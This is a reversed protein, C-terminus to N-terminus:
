AGIRSHQLVCAVLQIQLVADGQLAVQIRRKLVWPHQTADNQPLPSLFAGFRWFPPLLIGEFFFFYKIGRAHTDRRGEGEKQCEVVSQSGAEM